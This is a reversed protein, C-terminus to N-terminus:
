KGDKVAEARRCADACKFTARGFEGALAFSATEPTKKDANARLELKLKSFPEKQNKDVAFPLTVEVFGKKGREGQTLTLAKLKGGELALSVKYEGQPLKKSKWTLDVLAEFKWGEAETLAKALAADMKAGLKEVALSAEVGTLAAVKKTLEDPDTPIEKYTLKALGEIETTKEDAQALIEQTKKAVTEDSPLKREHFGDSGRSRDGQALVPTVLCAAFSAALFPVVLKM